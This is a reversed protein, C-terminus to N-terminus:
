SAPECCPRSAPVRVGNSSTALAVLSGVGARGDGLGRPGVSTAGRSCRIPLQSSRRPSSVPASSTPGVPRPDSSEPVVRITAILSIIAVPVNVFFVTRWGWGFLDAQTLVGGLVLGIAAAFGLTAGYAGFM